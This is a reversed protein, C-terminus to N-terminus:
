KYAVVQYDPNHFDGWDSVGYRDNKRLEGIRVVAYKWKEPATAGNVPKHVSWMEGDPPPARKSAYLAALASDAARCDAASVNEENAFRRFAPRATPYVQQFNELYESKKLLARLELVYYDAKLAEPSPSWKPPEPLRTELKGDSREFVGPTGTSKLAEPMPAPPTPKVAPGLPLSTAEDGPELQRMANLSPM